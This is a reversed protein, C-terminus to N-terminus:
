PREDARLVALVKEVSSLGTKALVQGDADLVYFGPIPLELDGIQLGSDGGRVREAGGICDGFEQM